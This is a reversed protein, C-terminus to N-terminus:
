PQISKTYFSLSYYKSNGQKIGEQNNLCGNENSIQILKNIWYNALKKM